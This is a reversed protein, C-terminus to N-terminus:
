LFQTRIKGKTHRGSAKSLRSDFGRFLVSVVSALCSSFLLLFPWEKDEQEYELEQEDEEEEEEVEEEYEDKRILGGAEM